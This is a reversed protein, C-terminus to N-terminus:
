QGGFRRVREAAALTYENLIYEFYKRGDPHAHSLTEVDSVLLATETLASHAVMAQAKVIVNHAVTSRVAMASDQAIKRKMAPSLNEMSLQQPTFVESYHSMENNQNIEKPM